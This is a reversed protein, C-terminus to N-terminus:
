EMGVALSFVRSDGDWCSNRGGEGEGIGWRSKLRVSQMVATHSKIEKLSLCLVMMVVMMTMILLVLIVMM